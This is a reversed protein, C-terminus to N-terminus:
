QTKPREWVWIAGVKRAQIGLKKTAWWQLTRKKIGKAEALTEAEKAPLPWRSEDALLSRLLEEADSGRDEDERQRKPAGGVIADVDCDIPEASWLLRGDEIYFGLTDVNKTCNAGVSMFLRREENEDNPDKAVALVIRALGAFGVSGIVQNIAAGGKTKKLHGVVLGAAEYKKLMAALPALLARVENDRHADAGPMYSGIPDIVVADFRERAMAAEIVDMDKLTLWRDEGGERFGPCFVIRDCDAGLADLRPRITDEHDDEATVLLTSALPAVGGGIWEHGRSLTAAIYHTLWSKGVKPDGMLLSIKGRALRGEWLWDIGKPQVSSMRILVPERRPSAEDAPHPPEDLYNIIGAEDDAITRSM